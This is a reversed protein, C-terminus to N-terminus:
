RKDQDTQLVPPPKDSRPCGPFLDPKALKLKVVPFVWHLQSYCPPLELKYAGKGVVQVVKFPGLQKDLFKPSPCTTIINSADVWVRDGVKIEPVPVHQHNYYLKFEDKAKVLTAKAESVRATIREHFENVFKDAYLQAARVAGLGTHVENFHARKGLIDVVVMVADFGHVEPLEVIFDVLVTDWHKDLIETTHLEGHPFRQLAKTWNCV